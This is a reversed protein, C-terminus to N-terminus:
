DDLLRKYGFTFIFTSIMAIVAIVKQWVVSVIFRNYDLYDNINEVEFPNFDPPPESTEFYTYFAVNLFYIFAVITYKKSIGSLLFALTMFLIGVTQANFATIVFWVHEEFYIDLPTLGVGVFSVGSIVLLVAAIISLTYSKTNRKFLKPVFVHSVAALGLVLLSSNFLFSSLFNQTGDKTITVGLDSFFNENFSYSTYDPNFLTGGPFLYIAIINIFVFYLVMFRLAYIPIYGSNKM